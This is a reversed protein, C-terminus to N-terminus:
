NTDDPNSDKKKIRFIGHQNLYAMFQNKYSDGIPIDHGDNMLIRNREVQRIRDINVIYSRHVQLFNGPLLRKLTAINSNTLIPAKQESSYIQIYDSYSKIYNIQSTDSRVWRYDVKIFISSSSDGATKIGDHPKCRARIREAARQFEAYSYPKLIYDLPQVKFSEAAYEAYATIFVIMPPSALSAVFELGNLDPMNIDIFIADVHGAAMSEMAEFPDECAAVLDLYPTRDIYHTLKELAMPEDDVAICKIKM